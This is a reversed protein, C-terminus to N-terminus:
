IGLRGLAAELKGFFQLGAAAFEDRLDRHLQPPGDWFDAKNGSVFLIPESFGAQSLQRSLELYHELHISDKIQGKHSPRQRDMVRSLARQICDGDTELILARDMLREALDILGQVLPLSGFDTVPGIARIDVHGCSSLVRRFRRSTELLHASARARVTDLNQSWEHLVLDTIVPQFKTADSTMPDVLRHVLASQHNEDEEFGRVVDLFECTDLCLISQPTGVFTAAAEAITIM